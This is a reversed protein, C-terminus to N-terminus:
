GRSDREAELAAVRRELAEVRDLLEAVDRALPATIGGYGSLWGLHERLSQDPRRRPGRWAERTFIRPTM